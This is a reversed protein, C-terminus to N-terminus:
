STSGGVQQVFRHILRRDKSFEIMIAPPDLGVVPQELTTQVQLVKGPTGGLRHPLIHIRRDEQAIQLRYQGTWRLALHSVGRWWTSVGTLHIPRHREVCEFEM